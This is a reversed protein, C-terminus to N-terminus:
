EIDIVLRSNQMLVRVAAAAETAAKAKKEEAALKNAVKNAAAQAKAAAEQAKAAKKALEDAQFKSNTVWCVRRQIITKDALKTGDADRIEFEDMNVGAATLTEHIFEDSVEGYELSQQAFLDL